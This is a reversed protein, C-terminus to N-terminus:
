NVNNFKILITKSILFIEIFLIYMVVTETHLYSGVSNYM